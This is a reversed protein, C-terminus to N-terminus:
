EANRTLAEKIGIEALRLTSKGFADLARHLADLDDTEDALRRLGAIEERLRGGEAPDLADGYRELMQETKHTDFAVQNRLDVRRHADLDQKAHAISERAVRQVEDRTLGYNPVVQIGAQTGSRQECATVSLIGNADILFEVLVKPLGAPMPPIGRLTFEGLKRCDAALEREGQLVNLQIAAQGDVFTTFMETARCPITTNRLILKGMAGGMTEIGLSLPIVDLLLMDQASGSGSLLRAQVAAGLAVVEDPNLATYPPKGAAREVRHRVLPIRTSGGVLVVQDLDAATLDADRVASEFLAITRDVFTEIRSEFEDRKLARRYVRGGGLDLEIQAQSEDSLRIKVAESLGRLAQRAAPAQIDLQFQERVEHTVLKIIERDFDDGGLHTDGATALVQFVDGEIRLVSIDFTGGGLDYVAVNAGATQAPPDAEPRNGCDTSETQNLLGAPPQEALGKESRVADGADGCKPLPLPTQGARDSHAAIFTRGASRAALARAGIGYALAAATPENIIRVVELGAAQGADRTAQRQADDFYAPVTIVARRVPRGLEREARERLARLVLASLEEPSYQRGDIEIRLSQRPGAAVHYTLFPLESRIDDPGKGVLRKVSYVTGRPNEVAHRRAEWGIMMRPHGDDGPSVGIVSPLRGDGNEDRLIRPGREDAVAVLSFTTGLDIGVIIDRETPM